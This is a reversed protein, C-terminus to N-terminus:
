SVMREIKVTYDGSNRAYFMLHYSTTGTVLPYAVQYVYFDFGDDTEDTDTTKARLWRNGIHTASTGGEVTHVTSVGNVTLRVTDGAAYLMGSVVDSNTQTYGNYLDGYSTAENDTVSLTKEYVTEWEKKARLDGPMLLGFLFGNKSSTNM